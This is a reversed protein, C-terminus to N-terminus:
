DSKLMTTLNFEIKQKGRSTGFRTDNIVGINRLFASGGKEIRLDDFLRSGSLTFVDLYVNEEYIRDISMICNCSGILYDQEDILEVKQVYTLDNKLSELTSIREKLFSIREEYNGKVEDHFNVSVFDPNQPMTEFKYFYLLAAAMLGAFFAFIMQSLNDNM